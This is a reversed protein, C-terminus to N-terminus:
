PSAVGELEIEPLRSHGGDHSSEIRFHFAGDQGIFDAVPALENTGASLEEFEGSSRNLISVGAGDSVSVKFSNWGIGPQAYVAPVSPEYLFTGPSLFLEGDPYQEVYGDPHEPSVPGSIASSPIRFPGSLRIEPDFPQVIVSVSSYEPKGELGVKALPSATHGVLAPRRGDLAYGAAQVMNGARGDDPNGYRGGTPGAMSAAPFLVSGPVKADIELTEGAELDGLPILSTGSWVSVDRLRFSFGNTLTGTLSGGSVTLDAELSGADAIRTEGHVTRVSWFPMDRLTLLTGGPAQEAVAHGFSGSGGSFPASGGAASLTMPSSAAVELDGGRNTLVSGTYMGTLTGSGDSLFLAAQRFQPHFLRDKAGYAFIGASILFAAAPIIWWAQERRDRKKLVLYLVPGVLVIYFMVILIVAAVPIRFTEFRETASQGLHVFDNAPNGYMGTYAATSGPIGSLIVGIFGATEPATALPEDGFSFATQVIHGAGYESFAALVRGEWEGLSQAGEKLTVEFAPVATETGSERLAEPPLESRGQQELPLAGKFLGADAPDDTMGILLTAGARIRGAIAEQDDKSLGALFGDDAIILDAAEWGAADAPLTADRGLPGIVESEPTTGFSLDQLGSLRDASEALAVAFSTEMYYFNVNPRRDGKYRIERGNKWGGDFFRFQQESFSYSNPSDVTVRVTETEGTGIKLGVAMATGSEYSNSFDVILDGEFPDGDNRIEVVVPMAREEKAKGDIGGTAKVTLEPAAAAPGAGLLMAVAVIFLATGRKVARLQGM